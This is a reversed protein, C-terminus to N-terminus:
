PEDLDVEFAKVVSGSTDRHEAAFYAFRRREENAVLGIHIRKTLGRSFSGTGYGKNVIQALAENAKNKLLNKGDGCKKVIKVEIIM